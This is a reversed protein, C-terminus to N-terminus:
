KFLVLDIRPVLPAFEDVVVSLDQSILLNLIRLAWSINRREESLAHLFSKVRTIVVQRGKNPIFMPRGSNSLLLETVNKSCM